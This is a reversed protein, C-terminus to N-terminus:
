VTIAWWYWCFSCDGRMKVSSVSYLFVVVYSAPCGPGSKPCALIHHILPIGIRREQYSSRYRCLRYLCVLKFFCCMNAEVLFAWVIEFTFSLMFMSLVITPDNKIYLKHFYFRNQMPKSTIFYIIENNDKKHYHM